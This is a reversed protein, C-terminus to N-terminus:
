YISQLVFSTLQLLVDPNSCLLLSYIILDLACAKKNKLSANTALTVYVYILWITFTDNAPM